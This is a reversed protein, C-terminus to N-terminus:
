RDDEMGDWACAAKDTGLGGDGDGPLAQEVLEGVADELVGGGGGGGARVCGARVCGARLPTHRRLGVELQRPPLLRNVFVDGVGDDGNVPAAQDALHVLRRAM